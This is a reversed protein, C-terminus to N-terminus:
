TPMLRLTAEGVDCINSAATVSVKIEVLVSGDPAPRHSQHRVEFHPATGVLMVGRHSCNMRELFGSLAVLDNLIQAMWAVRLSGNVVVDLFGARRAFERDYHIPDTVGSAACYFALQTMTVAPLTLAALVDGDKCNIIDQIALSLKTM